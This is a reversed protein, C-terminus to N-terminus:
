NILRTVYYGRWTMFILNDDSSFFRLAEFRNPGSDLDGLSSDEFIDSLSEKLLVRGSAVNFIAVTGEDPDLQAFYSGNFSLSVLALVEFCQSPWSNCEFTSIYEPIPGSLEFFSVKVPGKAYETCQEDWGRVALGLMFTDDSLFGTIVPLDLGISAPIQAVRLLRWDWTSFFYIHLRDGCVLLKDRKAFCCFELDSAKPPEPVEPTWGLGHREGSALSIVSIREAFVDVRFMFDKSIAALHSLHKSFTFWEQFNAQEWEAKYTTGTENCLLLLTLGDSSFFGPRLPHASGPNEWYEIGRGTAIALLVVARGQPVALYHGDPSIEFYAWTDPDSCFLAVGHMKKIRIESLRHYPLTESPQTAGMVQDTDSASGPVGNPLKSPMRPRRLHREGELKAELDTSKSEHLQQMTAQLRQQNDLVQQLTKEHELRLERMVEALEEDKARLAERLESKVNQIETRLSANQEELMDQIDKGAKTKDLSKQNDVMEKQISLVIKSDDKIFTEILAFASHQTNYHRLVRSGKAEDAGGWYKNTERLEKERKEAIDFTEIDWMTTVLVVKSLADDGCLSRFLQINKLASGQMRTQNIRHCYIIGSLKIGSTYTATLWAGLTRLIETDKRNTDDFGPTDVLYVRGARLTPHHFIYTEVDRTCSKLDHGIEIEQDTCLGILSSKGSGTMGMLAIVIDNEGPTTGDSFMLAPKKVM